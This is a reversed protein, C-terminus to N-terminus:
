GYVAAGATRDTAPKAGVAIAGAKPDAEHALSLAAGHDDNGQPVAPLDVLRHSAALRTPAATEFGQEVALL